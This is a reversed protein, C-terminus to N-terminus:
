NSTGNATRLESEIPLWQGWACPSKGLGSTGTEPAGKSKGAKKKTTNQLSNPLLSRRQQDSGPLNMNDDSLSHYGRPNQLHRTEGVLPM